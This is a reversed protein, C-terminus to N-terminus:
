QLATFKAVMEDILEQQQTATLYDSTRLVMTGLLYDKEIGLITPMNLLYQYRSNASEEDAFTEVTGGGINGLDVTDGTDFYQIKDKPVKEYRFYVESTYGGQKNLLGNPDHEETVPQIASIGEIQQLRSIVFDESSSTIQKQIRISNELDTKKSDLDDIVASYDPVQINATDDKITQIEDVTESEKKQCDAKKSELDSKSLKFDDSTLKVEELIKKKEPVTQMTGSASSISDHLASVKSDDYPKEGSNILDQAKNISDQLTSNAESFPVLADNYAKVADNYDSYKINLTAVQNKYNEYAKDHPVKIGYYYGLGTAACIAIIAVTLILKLKKSLPKRKECQKPNSQTVAETNPKNEKITEATKEADNEKSSVEANEAIPYGCYPCKKAKSSVEHGCEPCKILPMKGVEENIAM